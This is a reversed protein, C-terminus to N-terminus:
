CWHEIKKDRAERFCPSRFRITEGFFKLLSQALRQAGGSHELMQGFIAGMGIIVAIFGLSSGMGKEITGAIETLPFGAAIAVLVSILILAVFAQMRMWIIMVLLLGVAGALITLLKPLDSATAAETQALIPILLDM